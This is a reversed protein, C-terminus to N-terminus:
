PFCRAFTAPVFDFALRQTNPIRIRKTASNSTAVDAPAPEYWYAYKHISLAEPSLTVWATADDPLVVLVLLLPTTGADRREILDNYNKAELDYAIGDPEVIIGAETTSKLQVDVYEGTPFLRAGHPRQAVAVKALQADVGNDLEPKSCQFGHRSALTHLYHRSLQEKIQEETM